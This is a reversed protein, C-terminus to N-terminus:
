YAGSQAAITSVIRRVRASVGYEWVAVDEVVELFGFKM